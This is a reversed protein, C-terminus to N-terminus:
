NILASVLLMLMKMLLVFMRLNLKVIKWLTRTLVLMRQRSDVSV